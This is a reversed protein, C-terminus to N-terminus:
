PSPEYTSGVRVDLAQRKCGLHLSEHEALEGDRSFRIPGDSVIDVEDARFHTVGDTGQGLIRHTVAEIALNGAPMREVVAVDFLGDEMDAQGGQEVFKRANGVLVCMADGEWHQSEGGSRAELELHLGDFELAERVGTVVFALTGLREKLEGSAATSADAPLGAICSVLFPEGDAFGVDVGRVEGDDTLEFGHRTDRIGLNEALLNATGGPVIDFTVEGLHDEAALGRLVENITGDGGCVALEGVGERAAERALEVGHEARKTEWVAFGKAQAKRRVWDAHDGTGSIPNLILTRSGVQM